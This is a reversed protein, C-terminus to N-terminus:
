NGNGGHDFQAGLSGSAQVQWLADSPIQAIVKAKNAKERGSTMGDTFVLQGEHNAAFHFAASLADHIFTMRTPQMDLLDGQGADAAQVKITNTMGSRSLFLQENKLQLTLPGTLPADLLAERKLLVLKDAGQTLPSAATLTYNAITLTTLDVDFSVFTGQVHASMGLHSAPIVVSQRGAFMAGTDLTVTFAGTNKDARAPVVAFLLAILASAAVAMKLARASRPNCSHMRNEWTIIHREAM